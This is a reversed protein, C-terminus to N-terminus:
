RRRSRRYELPTQGTWRRFARYFATAHSFGLLFAVESLDLDRSGVYSLALRRRIDDLIDKFTTGERELKRILTRDSINLQKAAQKAYPGGSTLAAAVIDRVKETMSQAKPLAALMIEAHKRVLEHLKPDAGKLPAQLDRERVVFAAVPASFRVAAKGFTRRYEALNDPQNHTFWAESFEGVEPPWRRSYSLYFAAVQFDAAARPLVLRNDLRVIAREGQIELRFDLADNVLRM